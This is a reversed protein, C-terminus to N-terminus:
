QRIASHINKTGPLSSSALLDDFDSFDLTVFTAALDPNFQSGAVRQIEALVQTRSLAQRYSRASSMADFTDALAICRAVFPIAEGALGHPYGRGDWSEHHHLVGPLIQDMGPIDKLIRFGIEPHKKIETYEEPTLRGVKCLVAEPVGIKGIDHLQGAMRFQDVEWAPLGIAAAVKATLLAVRDSHGCTYSDKADIAASLARMMGLQQGRLQSFRLVNEHFVALFNAASRVFRAEDSAIASDGGAKNGALIMGRCKGHHKIPITLVEANSRTAIEHSGPTLIDTWHESDSCPCLGAAIAAIEVDSGPLPGSSALMGALPPAVDSGAGFWIALWRFPLVEGMRNCVTRIVESPDDISNLLGSLGFLVNIEEYSQSLREALQDLAAATDASATQPSPSAAAIM